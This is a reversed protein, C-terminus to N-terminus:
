KESKHAVNKGSRGREGVGQLIWKPAQETIDRRQTSEQAHTDDGRHHCGTRRSKTVPLLTSVSSLSTWGWKRSRIQHGVLEQKTREM